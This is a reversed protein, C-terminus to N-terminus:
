FKLFMWFRIKNFFSRYVSLILWFHSYSRSNSFAKVKNVINHYKFYNHFGKVSFFIVMFRTNWNRINIYLISKLSWKKNWISYNGHVRLNKIFFLLFINLAFFFNLNTASRNLSVGDDISVRRKSLLLDM